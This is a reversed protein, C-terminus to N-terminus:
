PAHPDMLRQAPDCDRPRCVLRAIRRFPLVREHAPHQGVARRPRPWCHIASSLRTNSHTGGVSPCRGYLYHYMRQLMSQSSGYRSPTAERTRRYRHSRDHSRRPFRFRLHHHKADRRSGSAPRQRLRRRDSRATLLRDSYEVHAANARYPLPHLARPAPRPQNWAWAACRRLRGKWLWGEPGSPNAKVRRQRRRIPNYGVADAGGRNFDFGVRDRGRPISLCAGQTAGNRTSEVSAIGDPDHGAAIRAMLTMNIISTNISLAIVVLGIFVLMRAANAWFLLGGRSTHRNASRLIGVTAWIVTAVQFATIALAAGAGLRLSHSFPQAAEYGFLILRPVLNALLVGNLWYAEGLSIDGRWHRILWNPSSSCSNSESLVPQTM